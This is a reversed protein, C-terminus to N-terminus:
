LAPGEEAIAVVAARAGDKGAGDLLEVADVTANGPVITRRKGSRGHVQILVGDGQGQALTAGGDGQAVDFPGLCSGQGIM